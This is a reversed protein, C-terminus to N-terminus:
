RAAREIEAGLEHDVALQGDALQDGEVHQRAPHRLRHQAQRLDPLIELLRPERDGPEAVDEVGRRLRVNLAARAASGGIRPSMAKSCTM